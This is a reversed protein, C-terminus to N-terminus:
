CHGMKADKRTETSSKSFGHNTLELSEEAKKKNLRQLSKM